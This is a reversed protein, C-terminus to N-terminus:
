TVTTVSGPGPEQVYYGVERVCGQIIEPKSNLGPLRQGTDPAINWGFKSTIAVENRFPAIAGGLLREVEFPGYAEAADFFTVGRDFAARILEIMEPRHPVTTEYKRTTNQVGMGISSVELSGLRCRGMAETAAQRSSGSTRAHAQALAPRVPGGLMPAAALSGAALLFSRRGVGHMRTAAM